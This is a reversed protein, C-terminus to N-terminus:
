SARKISPWRRREIWDNLMKETVNHKAAFASPTLGSQDLAKLIEDPTLVGIAKCCADHILGEGEYNYCSFGCSGCKYVPLKEVVFLVANPGSGYRGEYREYERKMDKSDCDPCSEMTMSETM